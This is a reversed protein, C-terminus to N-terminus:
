KNLFKFLKSANCKSCRQESPVNKFEENEYAIFEGRLGAGVKSRQCVVGHNEFLHIKRGKFKTNNVQEQEYIVTIAEDKSGVTLSAEGTCSAYFAQAAKFGDQTKPFTKTITM